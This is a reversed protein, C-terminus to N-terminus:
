NILTITGTFTYPKGSFGTAKIVYVYVDQVPLAGQYKGDWGKNPNTTTYMLEGWRNYVSMEFSLYDSIVPQFTQNESLGFYNDTNGKRIGDKGNPKFVNPIYIILEPQVHITLSDIGICNRAQVKLFVKFSGTDTYSHSPNRITSSSLLGQSDGFTWNYTTAPDKFDINTSLNPDVDFQVKPVAITTIQPNAFIVPKPTAFVTIVNVSDKTASCNYNLTAMTLKVTFQQQAQGNTVKYIHTPNQDSSIPSSDGFDWAYNGVGGKGSLTYSSQFDVAYPECGPTNATFDPVPRPQININVSDRSSDCVGPNAGSLYIWFSGTLLQQQTPYYVSTAVNGVPPNNKINQGNPSYWTVNTVNNVVSTLDFHDTGSCQVPNTSIKVHPRPYVAIDRTVMINCKNSDYPVSYTIINKTSDGSTDAKAPNFYFYGGNSYVSNANGSFEGGPWNFNPKLQIISHSECYQYLNDSTKFGISPAAYVYISMTDTSSCMKRQRDAWVTYALKHYGGKAIAPDFLYSNTPIDFSLAATNTNDLLNWIGGGPSGGLQVPTGGDCLPPIVTLSIKPNTRVTIYVTDNNSCNTKGSSQTYQYIVGFTSDMPVMSPDFFISDRFTSAIIANKPMAYSKSTAPCPVWLGGSPNVVNINNLLYRGNATCIETDPGAYVQPLTSIAIHESDDSTCKFQDTYHYHIWGLSPDVTTIGVMLPSLYNSVIAAPNQPYYWYGGSQHAADVYNMLLFSNDNICKDPLPKLIPKPKDHVKVQYRGSDTCTVGNITQSIIIMLPYGNITNTAQPITYHSSTSLIVSPYSRDFWLYKSGPGGVGANIPVSDNVCVDTDGTIAKVLPNFSINITDSGPCSFSDQVLVIYKGSDNVSVTDGKLYNKITDNGRVRTWFSYKMNKLGTTLTIPHDWCGTQDPGLKPVPLKQLHVRMSDYNSCNNGDTITVVFVTDKIIKKTISTATNVDGKEGTNWAFSYPKNGQGFTSQVTIPPSNECVTKDPPLSVFVFPPIKVSDTYSNICGKANKITLTYQYTGARTYKYTCTQSQSFLPGYGAAGQGTWTYSTISTLGSSVASFKVIGCSQIVASYQAEPPAIVTISFVKNTRGPVPCANDLATVVFRYPASRVDSLKPRWCFQATPWKKTLDIISFSAGPIQSNWSMSVSDPPDQDFAKITFCNNTEACFIASTTNGGNIGTVIPPHNAPCDIIMIQMDRRIEGIKQYIGLSDKRYESIELAIVTVDPKVAKFDIEGTYPNLHFGKCSVPPNFVGGTDGPFGDYDLPENTNYSGSWPTPAGAATLPDTFSYSLSDPNGNADRDDDSAAPNYVVCQNTCYIAVPPNTFYPSNDCIANCRSLQSTIYYNAWTAGTTIEASRCCQTWSIQYDCCGPPLVVTATIYYQQIGFPFPCNKDTCRTCSKQCVPTIDRGGSSSGSVTVPSGTCGPGVPTLIFPSNVFPIGNCDRYDTITITFSDNGLCKWTVDSGVMIVLSAL